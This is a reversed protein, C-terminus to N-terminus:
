DRDRQWLSGRSVWPSGGQGSEPGWLETFTWTVSQHYYIHFDSNRKYNSIMMLHHAISNFHSQIAARILARPDYSSAFSWPPPLHDLTDFRGMEHSTEVPGNFLKNALLHEHQINIFSGGHIVSGRRNGGGGSREGGTCINKSM